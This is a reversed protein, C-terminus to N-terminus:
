RRQPATSKDAAVSCNPFATVIAARVLNGASAKDFAPQDRMTKVLTDVIQAGTMGAPECSPRKDQERAAMFDDYAGAVYAHCRAMDQAYTTSPEAASCAAHLDDGTMLAARAPVAPVALLSALAFLTPVALRM